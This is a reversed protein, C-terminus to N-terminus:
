KESSQIKLLPTNIEADATGWLLARLVTFTLRVVMFVVTILGKVATSAAGDSLFHGISILLALNSVMSAKEGEGSCTFPSRGFHVTNFTSNNYSWCICQKCAHNHSFNLGSFKRAPATLFNSCVFIEGKKLVAWLGFRLGTLICCFWDYEQIRPVPVLPRLGGPTQASLRGSRERKATAGARAM